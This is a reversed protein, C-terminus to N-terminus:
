RFRISYLDADKMVFRVRVTKGRLASLDEGGKWSVVREIEDGIVEQCDGLGFGPLPEGDEDQLEVRLSGAASTAYNVVLRKGSFRLPKTVMEGGRYPAHVSVFGDIRLTLREIYTSPQGYHRQVYMSMEREGTPVVGRAPYNSRAVWDRPNGGARVFSELFTRDYRTGGRSSILVGDSIAGGLQAYNDPHHLGIRRELEPTLAWRGKMFRAPTGIYIHPARYYPETQNTYLHEHPADGFTMDTPKEWHIFDKSTTRTIWRVGNKFTRFFCVYRQEHESWFINNQSDFAGKTIIPEDRLKKWRIGDASVYAILGTKRTGGVGKYRESAPVGPRKDVFPAFNHTVPGANALVINNARTGDFSFLGLKPRRWTKGDSSEAYCTSERAEPRGDASNNAPRGRYYMKYTGEDLLVTFYGSLIGEWPRDLKLAVGARRPPHLRLSTGDLEGILYHDVFLELRSGIDVPEAARAPAAVALAAALSFMGAFM